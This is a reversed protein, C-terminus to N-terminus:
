TLPHRCVFVLDPILSLRVQLHQPGLGPPSMKARESFIPESRARILKHDASNHCRTTQYTVASMDSFSKSGDTSYLEEVEMLCSTMVV